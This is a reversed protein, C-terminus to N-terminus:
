DIRLDDINDIFQRYANSIARILSLDPRPIIMMSFLLSYYDVTYDRTFNITCDLVIKAFDYSVM